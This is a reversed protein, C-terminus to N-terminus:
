QKWSPTLSLNDHQEGPTLPNMKPTILHLRTLAEEACLHPNQCGLLHDRTCEPCLCLISPAQPAQQNNNRLKASTSILDAITLTNHKKLLCRASVSTLPKHIAHPHYWAPLQAHLHQSLRLPALHTNHKKAIKLMRLIDDNMLNARPGRTPPNWSQLFPNVHARDLTNPPAANNIIIDFLIAWKPRSPTFNLYDKLWIVEIAENRTKIDLLNLGGKDIPLYLTDVAICPSSDDEWIFDRV